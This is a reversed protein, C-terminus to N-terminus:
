QRIFPIGDKGFGTDVKYYESNVFLKGQYLTGEVEVRSDKGKQFSFKLLHTSTIQVGSVTDQSVQRTAQHLPTDIRTMRVKVSRESEKEVIWEYNREDGLNTLYQLQYTGVLFQTMDEAVPETKNCGVTALLLTLIFIRKM